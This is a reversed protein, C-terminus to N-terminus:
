RAGYERLWAALEGSARRKLSLCADIRDLAEALSRAGKPKHEPQAFFAAVDDHAGEHCLAGLARIMRDHAFPPVRRMLAPWNAKAFDWARLRSEKRGILSAFM